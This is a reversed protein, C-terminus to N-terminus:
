FNNKTASDFLESSSKMVGLKKGKAHHLMLDLSIILPGFINDFADMAALTISNNNITNACVPAKLDRKLLLRDYQSRLAEVVDMNISSTNM